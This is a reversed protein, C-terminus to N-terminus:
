LDLGHVAAQLREPALHAYIETTRLTAHGLLLQIERLPVGNSALHAAFTHRLAHLSGDLGARRADKRFARSLSKPHMRPLLHTGNRGVLADFAAIAGPSMPVQRWRRSKTRAGERSLVYVAGDRVDAIRLHFAESARLGTNAMFRWWHAHEGSSAAYLRELEAATYWRPPAHHARPRRVRRVPNAEILGWRIGANYVAALTRLEKAVTTPRVRDLRDRKWRELELPGVAAPARPHLWGFVETLIYRVYDHSDPYEHRHWDLYLAIFGGLTHPDDTVM